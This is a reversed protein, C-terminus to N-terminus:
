KDLIGKEMYANNFKSLFFLGIIASLMILIGHVYVVGTKKYLALSMVPSYAGIQTGISYGLSINTYRKHVPFQKVTWPHFPVYFAACIVMMLVKFAFIGSLTGISLLSFAPFTLFLGLLISYYVMRDPGIRDTIVGCLPLIFIYFVLAYNNMHMIDSASINTVIALFTNIMITPVVYLISGFCSLSIVTTLQTLHERSINFLKKNYKSKTDSLFEPTETISKMRFYLAMVITLAGVFYPIRWYKHGFDLVLSSAFSALMIGIATFSCYIGSMLGFKDKNHEVIFIAGGNYEGAVFFAQSLRCFLLLVPAFIGISEYTPLCGMFLTTLGMGLMSFILATKRGYRDGISGIFLAGIPKAILSIGYGSLILIFANMPDIDPFFLKILIPSMFGYLGTDYHELLSGMNVSLYKHINSKM